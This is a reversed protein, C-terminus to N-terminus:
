FRGGRAVLLAARPSEDATAKWALYRDGYAALMMDLAVVASVERREVGELVFWAHEHRYFVPVRAPDVARVKVGWAFAMAQLTADAEIQGNVISDLWVLGHLDHKSKGGGMGGARHQPVIRDGRQATMACVREDRAELLM